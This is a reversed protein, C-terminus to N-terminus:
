GCSNVPRRVGHFPTSSYPGGPVPLVSSALATAVSHLVVKKLMLALEMMEFHLPSESFSTLTHAGKSLTDAVVMDVRRKEGGALKGHAFSVVAAVM